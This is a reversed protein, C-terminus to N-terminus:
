FISERGYLLSGPRCKKKACLSIELELGFTLLLIIRFHEQLRTLAQLDTSLPYLTPVPYSPQLTPEVPYSTDFVNM